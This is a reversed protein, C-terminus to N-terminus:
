RACFSGGGGGGGSRIHEQATTDSVDNTDTRDMDWGDGVGGGPVALHGFYFLFVCLALLVNTDRASRTGSDTFRKNSSHESCRTVLYYAGGVSKARRSLRTATCAYVASYIIWFYPSLLYLYSFM